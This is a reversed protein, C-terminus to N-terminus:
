LKYSECEGWSAGPEAVELEVPISMGGLEPWPQTMVTHMIEAVQRTMHKPAEVILSDHVQLLLHAPEPLPKIIQVVKLVRDIPWAIREYMLAIMCRFVIDAVCSQADQALSETYLQETYFWRKRGFANVLFGDTEAQKARQQQWKVTAWNNAKWKDVLHKTELPDLGNTAAIRKYGEGKDLGHTVIKAKKYFSDPDSSKVVDEYPVDFLIHANWKHESFGPTALRSLRETDNAFYATLRNEASSLDASILQWDTHSPVFLYRAAEPQNQLNPSSMSLRGTATGHVLVSPHVIGVGVTKEKMFGSLLTSLKRCQRLVGIAVAAKRLEDATSRLCISYLRDLANKDTTVKKTKPHLMQPLKLEVYLWQEIVDSSRWPILQEEAEIHIFKVPKGSKGLTGTPAPQRKRVKVTQPRLSEPLQLELEALQKELKARVETLRQPDTKFGQDSMGKCILAIPMQVNLYLGELQQMRLMPLLVRGSQLTTDTDRACRLPWYDPSKRDADKWAPKNTFQSAIFELDHALDPFLLHHMLMIDWIECTDDLHVGNNKLLPIDFQLINQGFVKKANSFIRRIEGIYAGNFPAVICHFPKSAIGILLIEGTGPNTELDFAFTDANFEKLDQLTPQVNYFEPPVNCTKKLDNIVVPIDPQDHAAVYQPHLTPMVMCKLQSIALPLPSGRWYLIGKHKTLAELAKDGFADIREWPKSDLLPILHETIAHAVVIDADQESIYTRATADTPYNNAPPQVPLVNFLNIEDRKVGANRYFNDLWKGSQGVFPERQLNENEGGAEGIGLRMSSGYKPPIYNSNPFFKVLPCDIGCGNHDCKDQTAQPM